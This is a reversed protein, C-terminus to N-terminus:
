SGHGLFTDGLSWNHGGVRTPFAGFLGPTRWATSTLITVSASISKQCHAKPSGPLLRRTLLDCRVLSLYLGLDCTHALSFLGVPALLQYPYQVKSVKTPSVGPCQRLFTEFFFISPFVFLKLVQFNNGNYLPLRLDYVSVNCTRLHLDFVSYHNNLKELPM